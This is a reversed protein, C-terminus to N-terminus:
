KKHTPISSITNSRKVLLQYWKDGVDTPLECKIDKVHMVSRNIEFNIRICLKNHDPDLNHVPHECIYQMKKTEIMNLLEKKDIHVGVILFQTLKATKSFLTVEVEIDISYEGNIEYNQIYEPDYLRCYTKIVYGDDSKESDMILTNVGHVRRIDMRDDTFIIAGDFVLDTFSEIM